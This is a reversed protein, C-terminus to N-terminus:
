ETNPDFKRMEVILNCPAEIAEDFMHKALFNIKLRDPNIPDPSLHDMKVLCPQPNSLVQGNRQLCFCM